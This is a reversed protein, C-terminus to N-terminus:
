TGMARDFTLCEEGHNQVRNITRFKCPMFLELQMLHGCLTDTLQRQLLHPGQLSLEERLICRTVVFAMIEQYFTRSVLVLRVVDKELVRLGNYSTDFTQLHLEQRGRHSRMVRNDDASDTRYAGLVEAYIRERHRVHEPTLIPTRRLQPFIWGHPNWGIQPVLPEIAM